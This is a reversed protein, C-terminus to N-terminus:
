QKEYIMRYSETKDFSEKNISYIVQEDYGNWADGFLKGDISTKKIFQNEESKENDNLVLRIKEYDEYFYEQLLPIIKNLFIKRLFVMSPNEKLPMFYAHGIMHERDYLVEIRENIKKLMSGINIGDVNTFEAIINYGSALKQRSDSVKSSLFLFLGAVVIVLAGILTEFSNNKM